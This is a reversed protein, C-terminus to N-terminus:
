EGGKKEEQKTVIDYIEDVKNRYAIERDIITDIGEQVHTGIVAAFLFVAILVAVVGAFPFTPLLELLLAGLAFFVWGVICLIITVTTM